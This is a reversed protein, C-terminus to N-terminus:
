EAAKRLRAILAPAPRYDTDDLREIQRIWLSSTLVVAEATHLEGPTLSVETVEAREILLGRAIGPLVGDSLPPTLLRGGRWVIVNAATGSAVWGLTNLLVADQAGSAAAEQLAFLSDLYNLSKIGALPSMENRRTIRSIVARVAAPRAVAESWTMLLTCNPAVPPALGREAPGRTLTLRLSGSSQGTARIVDAAGREVTAAAWPSSFGLLAAGRQMRDLHRGLYLAQGRRVAVTEFVGDGLTFGRDAPDIRAQQALVLGGNLWCWVGSM